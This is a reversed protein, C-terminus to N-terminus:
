SRIQVEGLGLDATAIGIPSSTKKGARGTAKQQYIDEIMKEYGTVMQQISAHELVYQRGARGFDAARARDQLLEILRGALEEESGPSVLYGSRGDHVAKDVSGVRTAVVPKEAAMAELISVPNAEIHSSLALVDILSLVEPVDSRTGLFRVANSISLLGALAELADRQPGDGVILFRANPIARRVRVAARLFLSHSKEPRLAAVIGVVPANAALDFEKRLTGNSTRPCFREVDVGNPIVHIKSATCGEHAALYRGHPEAVAIFADTIPALLRNVFQVRDPWGTSHLASAIVPVGALRAALRGWFMKDGAGVTVIADIRRQRMLGALRWCISVDTKRTLLGHHTPIELALTEGLPGLDKLCCLEPLFRSRDLRRILEVLLTEAGGVPMSTIVFMVRLPGRDHLNTPTKCHFLM